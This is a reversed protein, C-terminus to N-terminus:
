KARRLTRKASVACAIIAVCLLGASSPEPVPQLMYQQGQFDELIRNQDDIATFRGPGSVLFSLTPDIQPFPLPVGAGNALLAEFYHGVILDNDNIDSLTFPDDTTCCLLQGQYYVFQTHIENDGSVRGIVEGESNAAIPTWSFQPNVVAGTLGHAIFYNAFLANDLGLTDEATPVHSVSFISCAPQSAQGCATVSYPILDAAAPIAAVLLALALKLM